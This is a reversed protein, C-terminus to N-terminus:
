ALGSVMESVYDYIKPAAADQYEAVIKVIASGVIAGDAISSYQHVQEKTNIGFGVAAPTDTVERISQIISGVDTTINSRVGTVGLSSVVYIFGDAESAITRIREESTPAIMSILSLGYERAIPALEQKEEFPMDPIIMGDIGVEKCRNCFKKYGYKYLTNAYALFVLPIQTKTRLEAVMDFLKDTTCGASLARLNAEQIVPGEAIPDSFPIGLEVLAAGAREMELVFEQTKDLNPDGATVFGIFAKKDQFANQIRNM